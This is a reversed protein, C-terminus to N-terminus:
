NIFQAPTYWIKDYVAITNVEMSEGSFFSFSLKMDDRAVLSWKGLVKWLVNVVRGEEGPSDGDSIYTRSKDYSQFTRETWSGHINTITAAYQM